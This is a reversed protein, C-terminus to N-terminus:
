ADFGSCGIKVSIRWSKLCCLGHEFRICSLILEPWITTAVSFMILASVVLKYDM